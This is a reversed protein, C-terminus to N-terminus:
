NEEDDATWGRIEKICLLFNKYTGLRSETATLGQGLENVKTKKSLFYLYLSYIKFNENYSFSFDYSTLHHINILSVASIM